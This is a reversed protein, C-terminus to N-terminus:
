CQCRLLMLLPQQVGEFLACRLEVGFHGSRDSSAIPCSPDRGYRPTCQNVLVRAPVRIPM